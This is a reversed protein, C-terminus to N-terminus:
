FNNTRSFKYLMNLLKYYLARVGIIKKKGSLLMCDRSSACFYFHFHLIHGLVTTSVKNILKTLSRSTKFTYNHFCLKHFIQNMCRFPFLLLNIDRFQCIILHLARNQPLRTFFSVYMPKYGKREKCVGAYGEKLISINPDFKM